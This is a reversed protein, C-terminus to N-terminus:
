AAGSQRLKTVGHRGSSRGGWTMGAVAPWVSLAGGRRLVGTWWPELRRPNWDEFTVEFLGRGLEIDWEGTRFAWGADERVMGQRAQRHTAKGGASSM